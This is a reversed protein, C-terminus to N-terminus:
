VSSTPPEIGRDGVMKLAQMVRCPRGEPNEGMALEGQKHIIRSIEKLSELAGLESETDLHFPPSTNPDTM